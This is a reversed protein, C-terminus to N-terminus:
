KFRQEHRENKAGNALVLELLSVDSFRCCIVIKGRFNKVCMGVGVGKVKCSCPLMDSLCTENMTVVVM